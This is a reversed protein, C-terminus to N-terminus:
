RSTPNSTARACSISCPVAADKKNNDGRVDPDPRTSDEEPNDDESAFFLLNLRNSLKPSTSASTPGRPETVGDGEEVGATLRVAGSQPEGRGREVDDFFHDLWNSARRVGVSGQDHVQDLWEMVEGDDGAPDNAPQVRRGCRALPWPRLWCAQCFDEM